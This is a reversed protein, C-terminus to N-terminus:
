GDEIDFSTETNHPSLFDTLSPVSTMCEAEMMYGL